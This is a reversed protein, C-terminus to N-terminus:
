EFTNGSFYPLKTKNKSKKVPLVEIVLGHITASKHPEMKSVDFSSSEEMRNAPHIQMHGKWMCAFCSEPIIRPM